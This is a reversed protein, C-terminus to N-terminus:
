AVSNAGLGKPQTLRRAKLWVIRPNPNSPLTLHLKLWVIRLIQMKLLRKRGELVKLFAFKESCHAKLNM